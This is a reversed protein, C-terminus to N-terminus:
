VGSDFHWNLVDSDFMNWQSKETVKTGVRARPVILGKAALTKMSERLVTRSVGFRELLDGDGPLPAGVPFLGSVIAKGLEDVAQSQSTRLQRGAKRTEFMRGDVGARESVRVEQEPQFPVPHGEAAPHLLFASARDPDQDVLEVTHRRLHHLDTHAGP